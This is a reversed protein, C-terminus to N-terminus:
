YGTGGHKAMAMAITQGSADIPTNLAREVLARAAENQGSGSLLLSQALAGLFSRQDLRLAAEAQKRAEELRGELIDLVLAGHSESFNRDLALAAEFSARSAPFNAALLHAWGAAIWSGVPEGFLEAGHQIDRAAAAHAGKALEGLGNGV